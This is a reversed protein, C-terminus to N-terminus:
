EEVGGFDEFYYILENRNLNTPFSHMNLSEENASSVINVNM